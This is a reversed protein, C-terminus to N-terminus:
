RRGRRRRVLEGAGGALRRVFERVVDRRRVPGSRVARLHETNVLLARRAVRWAGQATRQARVRGVWEAVRGEDQAIARWLRYERRGAYRDLDGEVVAFAVVADLEQVRARLREPLQPHPAEWVARVDPHDAPSPTGSRAVHLCQVLAQDVVDPVACAVGALDRRGREEWLLSFAREPSVGLGPWWRHVDLYGWDPHRLTAAHEFPSGSGFSTETRWGRRACAELVAAVHEPRVLVDADSFPRQPHRLSPDLAAGKIHLVDAAVDDAVDQLVAHAFECVVPLPVRTAIPM